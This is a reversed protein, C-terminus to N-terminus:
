QKRTVIRLVIWNFSQSLYETDTVKFNTKTEKNYQLIYVWKWVSKQTYDRDPLHYGRSALWRLLLWQNIHLLPLKMNQVDSQQISFCYSFPPPRPSGRFSYHSGFITSFSKNSHQDNRKIGFYSTACIKDNKLFIQQSCVAVIYCVFREPEYM